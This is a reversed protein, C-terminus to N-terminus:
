TCDQQLGQLSSESYLGEYERDTAKYVGLSYFIFLFNTLEVRSKIPPQECSVMLKTYKRVPKSINTNENFPRSFNTTEGTKILSVKRDLPPSASM